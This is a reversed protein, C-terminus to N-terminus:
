ADIICSLSVHRKTISRWIWRWWVWIKINSSPTGITVMICNRTLEPEFTMMPFICYNLNILEQRISAVSEKSARM